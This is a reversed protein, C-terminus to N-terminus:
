ADILVASEVVGLAGLAAVETPELEHRTETDKAESTDASGDTLDIVEPPEVPTDEPVVGRELYVSGRFAMVGAQRATRAISNVGQLSLESRMRPVSNIMIVRAMGTDEKVTVGKVM